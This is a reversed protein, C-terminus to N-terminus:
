CRFQKTVKSSLHDADAAFKSTIKCSGSSPRSFSKAYRSSSNLTATKTAIRRWTGNARRKYLTVTVQDGAHNPQVQGSTKIKSDTKTISLTTTTAGTFNATVNRAADMTVQCSTGTCDGTWGDFRSGNTPTATLTVVTDEVYEQNCDGGCNIGSPSSTVTGTGTGGKAVTLGFTQVEEVAMDATMTAACTSGVNNVTVNSPTGSYLNSNPNSTADFFKPGRYPDGNDGAEFDADSDLENLGDAEELDVLKRAETANASNTATRTEDIHWILLGCGPLGADYGSLQRNEVLFYEGTGPNQQFTWDVAPSGPNDLLQYVDANNSMQSLQVGTQAGTIQTPTLWGEYWKSFADMHVPSFGAPNSGTTTWSGSAMVSWEGIGDSGGNTDYLDPLNLDHGMEHVMIGITAMHDDTPDGSWCHKEGFQTYGGGTADSGVQKGDATPAESGFLAWNHGWVSNGCSQGPGGYSTEHGGVIVSIHLERRQISGNGNTDFTSDNVFPDSAQIAAKVINRNVADINQDTNPHNSALRLWGVVGNNATGFSEAAAPFDLQNYSVEDYYDNVSNTTGFFKSAWQAETTTAAQNVYDVLLVIAPQSGVNPSDQAFRSHSRAAVAERGSLKERLHRRLGSPAAQGAQRGSPVLRGNNRVAYEWYGSRRNKVVTYGRLTEYGNSWEDGVLRAKFTSSDPQTFRNVVPRAPAASAAGSNLLAMLLWLIGTLATALVVGVLPSAARPQVPRTEHVIVREDHQIRGGGVSPHAV